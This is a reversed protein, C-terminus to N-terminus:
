GRRHCKQTRTKFDPSTKRPLKRGSFASGRRICKKRFAPFTKGRTRMTPETIVEEFFKINRSFHTVGTPRDEREMACAQENRKKRTRSDRWHDSQTSCAFSSVEALKRGQKLKEALHSDVPCEQTEGRGSSLRAPRPKPSSVLHLIHRVGGRGGSRLESAATLRYPHCEPPSATCHLPLHTKRWPFPQHYWSFHPHQPPPPLEVHGSACSM